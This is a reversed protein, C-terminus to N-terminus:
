GICDPRSTREVTHSAEAEEAASELAEEAGAASVVASVTAIASVSFASTGFLLLSSVCLNGGRTGGKEKNQHNWQLARVGHAGNRECGAAHLPWSQLATARRVPNGM